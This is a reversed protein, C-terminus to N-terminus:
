EAVTVKINDLYWRNQGRTNSVAPDAHTPRIVLRSSSSVDKLQLTAHQWEIKSEGDVRSQASEINGSTANGTDACTGGGDVVVTLTMIDPKYSGTVQWCWDFELTVHATAAGLNTLAPTVIGANWDSKGFKLYNSQLYLVKANAEGLDTSWDVSGSAYMYTYGRETFAEMFGACASATFVNPAKAGPNNEKVADGAEGAAAWAAIWEFDDAYVLSGVPPKPAAGNSPVVKINDIYWRRYLSSSAPEGTFDKPKIVIRTDNDVGTIAVSESKWNWPEEAKQPHTMEGSMVTGKGEVEIVLEVADPGGGGVHVGWDFTLTVDGVGKFDMKPLRIGNVHKNKGFKLYDTQLYFTKSSPFLDEYGQAALLDAFGGVATYANRANDDANKGMSDGAGAQVALDHLWSFDDEFFILKYVGKDIVESAVIDVAEATAAVTYGKVTVLHGNLGSFGFTESPSVVVATRAAGDVTTLVYSGSEGLSVIGTVTVYRVGDPVYADLSSTIDNEAPHTVTGSSKVVLEDLESIVPFGDQSIKVGNFSVADGPSIGAGGPVILCTTGGSAIFGRANKAVVQADPIIVTTKDAAKAAETVTYKAVGRYKDGAQSVIIRSYSMLKGGHIKVTDRRPFLMGEGDVNDSVSVSVNEVTGSGSSPSVTIWDPADVTWRGDSYVTVTQAPANQAAYQLVASSSLVARAQPVDEDQCSVLTCAALVAGLLAILSNEIFKM